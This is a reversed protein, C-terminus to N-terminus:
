ENREVLQIEGDQKIIVLINRANKIRAIRSPYKPTNYTYLDLHVITELGALEISLTLDYVGRASAIYLDQTGDLTFPQSDAEKTFFMRQYSEPGFSPIDPTWAEEREEEYRPEIKTRFVVVPYQSQNAIQVKIISKKLLPNVPIERKQQIM